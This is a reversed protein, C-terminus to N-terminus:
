VECGDSASAPEISLLAVSKVQNAKRGLRLLGGAVVIGGLPLGLPKVGTLELQVKSFFREFKLGLSVPWSNAGRTGSVSPEVGHRHAKSDSGSKARSSGM